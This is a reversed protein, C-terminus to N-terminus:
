FCVVDIDSEAVEVECAVVGAEMDVVLVELDLGGVDADVVVVGFVVFVVEVVVLDDVVDVGLVVFVVEVVVFDDVLDVVVEANVGVNVLRVDLDLVGVDLDFVCIGLVVVDDVFDVDVARGAVLVNDVFDDGFVELLVVTDVFDVVVGVDVVRGVLVFVNDVFDVACVGAVRVELGM